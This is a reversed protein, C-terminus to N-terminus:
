ALTMVLGPCPERSLMRQTLSTMQLFWKWSDCNLFSSEEHMNSVLQPKGPMGPQRPFKPRFFPPPCIYFPTVVPEIEWISVRSPREGATSEDWGVQWLAFTSKSSLSIYFEHCLLICGQISLSLNCCCIYFQNRVLPRFNFLVVSYLKVVWWLCIYLPRSWLSIATNCTWIKQFSMMYLNKVGLIDYLKSSLIPM